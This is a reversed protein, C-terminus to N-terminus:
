NSKFVKGTFVQGEGVVQVWYFGSALGELSISTSVKATENDVNQSFLVKGDTDMVSVVGM